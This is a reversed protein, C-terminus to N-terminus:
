VKKTTSSFMRVENLYQTVQAGSSGGGGGGAVIWRNPIIPANQVSGNNRASGAASSISFPQSTSGHSFQASYIMCTKKIELPISITNQMAPTSLPPPPPLTEVISFPITDILKMSTPSWIQIQDERSYSGTVIRDGTDDFDLSDGCIHPGYISKMAHRTRVDWLQITNDWGGSILINPDKPHFKVSFARNSHGATRENYGNTMKVCLKNTISDYVRVCTDSGTTGFKSGDSYYHLCAIQNEQEEITSLQQGTTCHWHVIRGDAYTAAIINRNKPDLADPRFTVHTCPLRPSLTNLLTAVHGSTRMSYVQIDGTGLAAILYEETPSFKVCFIESEEKKAFRTRFVGTVSPERPGLLNGISGFKKRNGEKIESFDTGFGTLNSMSSANSRASFLDRSSHISRNGHSYVTNGILGAALSTNSGTLFDTRRSASALINLRELSKFDDRSGQLSIRKEM